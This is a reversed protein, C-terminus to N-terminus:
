FTGVIYSKNHGTATAPTVPVTSADDSGATLSCLINFLKKKFGVLFINFIHDHNYLYM